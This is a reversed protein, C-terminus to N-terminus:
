LLDDGHALVIIYQYFEESVKEPIGHFLIGKFLETFILDITGHDSGPDIIWRKVLFAWHQWYDPLIQM